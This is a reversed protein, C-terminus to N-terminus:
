TAVGPRAGHGGWSAIDHTAQFRVAQSRSWSRTYGETYTRIVNTLSILLSAAWPPGPVQLGWVDPVQLAFRSPAVLAWGSFHFIFAFFKEASRASQDASSAEICQRRCRKMYPAGGGGGGRQYIRGQWWIHIQENHFCPITAIYRM